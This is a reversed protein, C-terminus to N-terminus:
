TGCGSAGVIDASRPKLRVHASSATGGVRPWRGPPTRRRRRTPRAWHMCRCGQNGAFAARGIHAYSWGAMQASCGPFRRMASVVEEPAGNTLATAESPECVSERGPNAVICQRSALRRSLACLLLLHPWVRAREEAFPLWLPARRDGARHMRVEGSSLWLLFLRLRLLALGLRRVGSVCLSAGCCLWRAALGSQGM